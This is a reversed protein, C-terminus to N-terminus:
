RRRKPTCGAQLSTTSESAFVDTAVGGGLEHIKVTAGTRGLSLFCFHSAPLAAGLLDHALEQVPLLVEFVPLAEIAGHLEELGKLRCYPTRPKALKRRKPGGAALTGTARTCLSIVRRRGADHMHTHENINFTNTQTHTHTTVTWTNGVM